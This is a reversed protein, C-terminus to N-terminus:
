FLKRTARKRQLLKDIFVSLKKTPGDCGSFIPRKVPTPKHIKTLTYFIPIRPPNPTQFLWKKTMKDMYNGDYLENILQQVRRPIDEAM